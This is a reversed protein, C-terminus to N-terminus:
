SGGMGALSDIREILGILDGYGDGYWDLFMEVDACYVVANKWWLDGTAKRTM